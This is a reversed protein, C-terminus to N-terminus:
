HSTQPLGARREVPLVMIQRVIAEIQARSSASTARQADVLASLEM